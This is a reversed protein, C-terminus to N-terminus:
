PVEKITVREPRESFSVREAGVAIIIGADSMTITAVVNRPEGATQVQADMTAASLTISVSGGTSLAADIAAEVSALQGALAAGASAEVDSTMTMASLMGALNASSGAGEVDVGLAAAAALLTADLVAGASSDSALVVQVSSLTAALAAGSSSLTQLEPLPTGIDASLNGDVSSTEALSATQAAMTASLTVEGASSADVDLSATQALLDAALDAGASSASALAATQALLDAALDAGASSASALAATQALLDAALDASSSATSAAAMTQAALAGVLDMDVAGGGTPEPKVALLAVVKTTSSSLTGGSATHSGTTGPIRYNSKLYSGDRAEIYGTPPTGTTSNENAVFHALFPETATTVSTSQINPSAGSATNTAEIPDGTAIGGTILICHGMTWQSGTWSPVYNGTDAGTLRKWAVKLKQSGTIASVVETFGSPWTVTPNTSEWQEIALLAIDDAAAGAPVPITCSSGLSDGVGSISSSRYDVAM